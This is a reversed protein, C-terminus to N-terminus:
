KGRNMNNLEEKTIEIENGDGINLFTKGEREQVFHMITLEGKLFKEKAWRAKFLRSTIRLGPDIRLLMQHFLEMPNEVRHGGYERRREPSDFIDMKRLSISVPVIKDPM